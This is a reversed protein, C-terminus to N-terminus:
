LRRASTLLTGFPPFPFRAPRRAEAFSACRAAADGWPPAEGALVGPCSLVVVRDYSARRAALWTKVFDFYARPLLYYEPNRSFPVDSCRFHVVVARGYAADRTVNQSAIWSSVFPALLRWGKAYEDVNPWNRPNQCGIGRGVAGLKTQYVVENGFGWPGSPAAALRRRGRRRCAGLAGLLVVGCCRRTWSAM